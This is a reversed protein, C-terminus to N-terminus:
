KPQKHANFIIKDFQRALNSLLWNTRLWEDKYAQELFLRWRITANDHDWEYGQKEARKRLNAIITKMDRPASGSFAPVDHFKENCFSFYMSVLENWYKEPPRHHKKRTM